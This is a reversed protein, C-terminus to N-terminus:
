VSQMARWDFVMQRYVVNSLHRKLCRMAEKFTKGEARRREVYAKTKEDSRYRVLATYHLAFNLKRNGGRNLRHRSSMGSSAILPATGAMMAFAAQSRIRDVDGVEGLIKAAILGPVETLTTGSAALAERLRAKTEAIEKSVRRLEGIRRRVLEARVSPDGKVLSAARSLHKAGVLNPVMRHYGPRLVVLDRHVRNARQTRTCLLQDRYDSLLKLDALARARRPSPLVEGRALVRVIAVADVPDSKGQSGKRRRERFTLTAPVELVREGASSLARCLAAGYNGSGEVGIARPTEHDRAWALLALHGQPDNPFERVGIVRGLEDVAAAALSCKHSDVGISSGM